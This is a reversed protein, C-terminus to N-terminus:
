VLRGRLALGAAILVLGALLPAGLAYGTSPLGSQPPPQHLCTFCSPTPTAYQATSADDNM